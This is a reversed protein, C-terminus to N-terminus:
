PSRSRLGFVVDYLLGDGITGDKENVVCVWCAECRWEPWSKKVDRIEPTDQAPLLHAFRKWAATVESLAWATTPDDHNAWPVLCGDRRRALVITVQPEGLRTPFLADNGVAGRTGTIYGAAADVVNGRAVGIKAMAEGDAQTQARCIAEPLVVTDEGHVAEILTRLGDPADIEGADFIARATLWQEDLRYVWSGRGLVERLWDEGEVMDPDPSVVHLTPGPVPREAEPRKDMHRWLRGARQILSGIPALDSVM